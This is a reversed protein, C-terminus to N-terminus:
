NVSVTFWENGRVAVVLSFLANPSSNSTQLLPIISFQQKSASNGSKNGICTRTAHKQETM